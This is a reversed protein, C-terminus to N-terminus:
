RTQWNRWMRLLAVLKRHNRRADIPPRAIATRVALVDHRNAQKRDNAPLCGCAAFTWSPPRPKRRHSLPWRIPGPSPSDSTVSKATSSTKSIAPTKWSLVFHRTLWKWTSRVAERGRAAARSCSSRTTARRHPVDAHNTWYGVTNKHPQPEYRLKTGTIAAHHAPLVITEGPTQEIVFPEAALIPEGVMELVIFAPGQSKKPLVLNWTTLQPQVAVYAKSDQMFVVGSKLPNNLRPITIIRNAPITDLDIMVYNLVRYAAGASVKLEPWPKMATKITEVDVVKDDGTIASLQSAALLFTFLITRAQM